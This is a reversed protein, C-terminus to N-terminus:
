FKALMKETIVTVVAGNPNYIEGNKNPSLKCNLLSIGTNNTILEIAYAQLPTERDDYIQCSTLGINSTDRCNVGTGNDKINVNTLNIGDSYGSAHIGEIANNNISCNSVNFDKANILYIGRGVNSNATCDSININEVNELYIGNNTNLDASCNSVNINKANVLYIGHLTNDNFSSNSVSIDKVDVLYLGDKTNGSVSSNSLSSGSVLDIDIGFRGNDWCQLNDYVNYFDVEPDVSSGRDSFGDSGNNWAYINRYTNHRNNGAIDTGPHIGHRYNDHTYLNHVYSYNVTNWDVGYRGANKTEINELLINDVRSVDICARSIIPYEGSSQADGDVTFNKMTTYDAPYGDGDIKFGHADTTLIITEGMGEGVINIAKRINLQGALQYYGAKLYITGGVPCATYASGICNNAWPNSATGTGTAWKQPYIM